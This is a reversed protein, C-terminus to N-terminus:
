RRGIVISKCDSDTLFRGLAIKSKVYADKKPDIGNLSASANKDRFLIVVNASTEPAVNKVGVINELAKTDKDTFKAPEESIRNVQGGGGGFNFTDPIV